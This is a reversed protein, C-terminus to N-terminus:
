VFSIAVSAAQELRATWLIRRFLSCGSFGVGLVVWTLRRLQIVEGM